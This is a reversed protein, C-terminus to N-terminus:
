DIEDWEQRRLLRRDPTARCLAPRGGGDANRLRGRVDTRQRLAGRPRGDERFRVGSVDQELSAVLVSEGARPLTPFDVIKRYGTLVGAERAMPLHVVFLINM